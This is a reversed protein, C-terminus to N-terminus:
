TTGASAGSSPSPRKSGNACAAASRMRAPMSACPRIANFDSAAVATASPTATIGANASPQDGTAAAHTTPTAVVAPGPMVTITPAHRRSETGAPSYRRVTTSTGTAQLRGSATSIAQELTTSGSIVIRSTSGHPITPAATVPARY